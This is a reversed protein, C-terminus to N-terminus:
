HHNRNEIMLHFCGTMDVTAIINENHNTSSAPLNPTSPGSDIVIPSDLAATLQFNAVSSSGKGKKKSQKGNVATSTSAMLDVPNCNFALSMAQQLTMSDLGVQMASKGRARSRTAKPLKPTISPRGRGKKKAVAAVTAQVLFCESKYFFDMVNSFTKSEDVVNQNAFKSVHTEYIDDEDDSDGANSSENSSISAQDEGDDKLSVTESVTDEQSSSRTTKKSRSKPQILEPSEDREKKRKVGKNKKQQVEPVTDDLIEDGDSLELSDDDLFFSNFSFIEFCFGSVTRCSIKLKQFYIM